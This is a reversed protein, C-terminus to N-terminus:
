PKVPQRLIPTWELIGSEGEAGDRKQKPFTVDCNDIGLHRLLACVFGAEHFGECVIVFPSEPKFPEDRTKEKEDCKM